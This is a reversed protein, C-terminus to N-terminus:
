FVKIFVGSFNNFIHFSNIFSKKQMNVEQRIINTYYITM